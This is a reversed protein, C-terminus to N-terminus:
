DITQTKYFADFVKKVGSHRLHDPTYFDKAVCGFEPGFLSGIIKVNYEKALAKYMGQFAIVQDLITDNEITSYPPVFFLVTVGEEQLAHILQAFLQVRDAGIYKKVTQMDISKQYNLKKNPGIIIPDLTMEKWLYYSELYYSGDRFRVFSGHRFRYVGDQPDDLPYVVPELSTRVPLYHLAQQLYAPSFLQQYKRWEDWVAVFTNTFRRNGAADLEFGIGKLADAYEHALEKWFPFNGGPVFMYSDLGFCFYKPRLNKKKFLHNAIVFDELDAGTMSINFFSKEPFCDERVEFCTSSGLFIVDPLSELGDIYYKNIWRWALNFNASVVHKGELMYHAFLKENTYQNLFLAGPDICYNLVVAAAILPTLGILKILFRTVDSM